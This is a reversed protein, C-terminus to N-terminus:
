LSFLYVKTLQAQLTTIDVEEFAFRSSAPAQMQPSASDPLRSARDCAQLMFLSAALLLLRMRLM